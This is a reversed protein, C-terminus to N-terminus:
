KSREELKQEVEHLRRDISRLAATVLAGFCGLFYMALYWSEFTQNMFLNVVTLIITGALVIITFNRVQRIIGDMEYNM